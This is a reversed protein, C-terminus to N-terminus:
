QAIAYDHIQRNEVGLDKFNSDNISQIHSAWSIPRYRPPHDADVFERRPCVNVCHAPHLLFPFSYRDVSGNVVVRHEVSRYKDNSLVQGL